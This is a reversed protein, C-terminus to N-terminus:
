RVGFWRAVPHDHLGPEPSLAELTGVVIRLCADRQQRQRDTRSHADVGISARAVRDTDVVRQEGHEARPPGIPVHCDTSHRTCEVPGRDDDIPRRRIAGRQEFHESVVMESAVLDIVGPGVSFQVVMWTCRDFRHRQEGRGDPGVLAIPTPSELQEVGTCSPSTWLLRDSQTLPDFERATARVVSEVNRTDTASGVRHAVSGANGIQGDFREILELLVDATATPSVTHHDSRGFVTVEDLQPAPGMADVALVTYHHARPPRRQEHLGEHLWAVM